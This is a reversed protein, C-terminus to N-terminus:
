RPISREAAMERPGSSVALGPISVDIVVPSGVVHAAVNRVATGGPTRGEPNGLHAHGHIVLDVPYQDIVKALGSNGLMWLKAPPETGLTTVTPAYHLVVVRADVADALGRLAQDLRTAERRARLAIAQTARYAPVRPGEDPWFGGGYGGVGAFGVEIARPPMPLGRDAKTGVRDAGASVAVTTATGDLLRVNAAELIRRLASRRLCRRDHNGLVAIIPITIAALVEAVAEFEVLRGNDTLDGALVLVDAHAQTGILDAALDTSVETQVHLDGIAALRIRNAAPSDESSHM